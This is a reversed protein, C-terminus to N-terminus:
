RWSHAIEFERFEGTADSWAVDVGRVMAMAPGQRCWSVFDNLAEEEGEALAEVSRDPLNRVWGTLGLAMACDAAEMRYCVGQVRGSVVLHVRKKM